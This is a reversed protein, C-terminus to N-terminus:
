KKLSRVYAAVANLDGESLRGKWATMGTGPVGLSISKYLADDSGGHRFQGKTFDPPPPNYNRAMPSDGQGKLGHCSACNQAFIEAGKKLAAADKPLTGARAETSPLLAWVWLGALILVLLAVGSHSAFPRRVTSGKMRIM